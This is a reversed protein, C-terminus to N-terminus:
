SSAGNERECLWNHLATAAIAAQGIAVAIQDLAFVVDGAAYLGPVSTEQHRGVVICGDETTVGDLGSALDSHAKSGLAPYVIDFERISGGLDLTVRDAGFEMGRYDGDCIAIGRNGLDRREEHGLVLPPHAVFSVDDSYRRLFNAKSISSPSNGVVALRKGSAELADCVPCLRILGAAIAADLGKADPLVDTVGTALITTSARYSLRCGEAHFWGEDMGLASITEDRIDAGYGVAHERMRLLMDRGSIGQPFGALNHSRPILRARSAGADVVVVKRRYRALYLAATLGAPGGGIILCDIREDAM